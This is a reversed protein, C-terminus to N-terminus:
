DTSLKFNLLAIEISVIRARSADRERARWGANQCVGFRDSRASNIILKYNLSCNKGILCKVDSSALVCDVGAQNRLKWRVPALRRPPRDARCVKRM